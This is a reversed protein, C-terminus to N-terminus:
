VVFVHTKNGTSKCYLFLGAPMCSIAKMVAFRDHPQMLDDRDDDASAAILMHIAM